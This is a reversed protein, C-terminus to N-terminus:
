PGPRICGGPSLAKGTGTALYVDFSQLVHGGGTRDVTGAPVVRDFCSGYGGRWERGARVVLLAPAEPAVVPAPEFAYRQREDIQRVLVGPPLHLALEGTVAYSTTAVWAAHGTGRVHDVGRAFAAWGRALQAPDKAGGLTLPSALYALAAASLAFGLPAAVARMRRLHRWPATPRPLRVAAAAALLALTPYIPAPWNGQVRDHLAHALMYLVLPAVLAVLFRLAPTDPTARRKLAVLIALGAFVAILPNMLGIQSGLLEPVYRATLHGPAIRGFQKAFSVFHHDANWVVVPLCVAGFVLAGCWLWPTLLWRRQPREVLMWALVGLGFFLNTYKSIVGLGAAAGVALWWGGRGTDRVLALALVALSWFLVSPADPTALFGGAGILLMANFWVVALSAVDDDRFLRRGTAHIALSTLPVAAVALARTGFATDGFLWTGLAIMWAVMPPHDFYGFAPHLSWLRYYAEDPLLGVRAAVVGHACTAAVVVLAATRARTWAPM